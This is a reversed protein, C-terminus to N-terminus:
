AAEAWNTSTRDFGVAVPVFMWDCDEMIKVIHEKIWEEGKYKKFQIEDHINAMMKTKCGHKDLFEQIKIMAWKLFDASSGQVLYNGVKYAFSWNSLYYRRGYMNTAYGYNRVKQIVMDQYHAVQPFSASWGSVLAEAVEMPIDLMEAAKKAGGGYNRMFNFGKGIKRWYKKFTDADVPSREPHEYKKYKEICTYGLGITLANHATESHVDTPKWPTGDELVWVSWGQELLKETSGEPAGERLETWRARQKPDKYNYEEGTLYHKCYLPMYARCLNIDPKGLLITYNAQVRLEIQSYDFYWLEDYDGGEPIFARRPYFLEMEQPASFEGHEQEYAEGEETLIREKPFQQADSGSRGSVATYPNFQTYFHGDYEAVELIRSIYTSQWKELRRLRTILKAIRSDKQKKLFAKNTTDPRYGLVEEFIDMIEKDQSVTFFKGSLKWLEKYCRDIEAELKQYSLKLYDIDVRFGTREQNYLIPLLKQEMDLIPKQERAILRPLAGEALELAYIGDSHIYEILVDRPIDAYTAAPYEEIWTKYIEYVEEPVEVWRQKRELTYIDIPGRKKVRFVDKIRGIGWGKYPKLLAKLVARKEDNVKKLEEKVANEFDKAQHDVYKAALYKLGLRDGGDRDSVAELVLRSIGMVDVVNGLRKIVDKWGTANELMHFDFKINNGIVMKVQKALILVERLVAPNHEFSFMRGKKGFPRKEVPIQWGFVWMFPKAKKIHLGDTESDLTVMKPQDKQFMEKLFWLTEPTIHYKDYRSTVPTELRPKIQTAEM